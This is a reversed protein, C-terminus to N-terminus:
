CCCRALRDLLHSRARRLPDEGPERGAAPRRGGDAGGHVAPQPEHVARQDVPDLVAVDPARLQEVQQV